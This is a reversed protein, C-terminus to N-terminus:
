LRIDLGSAAPRRPGPAAPLLPAPSAGDGGEAPKALMWSGDGAGPAREGGSAFELHAGPYGSSELERALLEAHRRLLDHTEPREAVVVARVGGELTTLHIHVRGLEPPDLRIEVRRDDAERVAVALQDVVAKPEPSAVPAVPVEPRYPPAAAEPVLRWGPLGAEHLMPRGREGEARLADRPALEFAPPDDDEAASAPAAAGDTLTPETREGGDIGGPPPVGPSPRDQAAGAGPAPPPTTPPTPSAVASLARDRPAEAVEIVGAGDVPAKGSADRLPRAAGQPGDPTRTALPQRAATPGSPVVLGPNDTASPPPPPAVPVLAIAPDSAEDPEDKERRPGPKPEPDAALLALFDGAEQKEVEPGRAVERPGLPLRSGALAPDPAIM